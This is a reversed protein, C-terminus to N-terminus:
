QEIGVHIVEKGGETKLCVCVCVCWYCVRLCLSRAQPQWSALPPLPISSSNPSLLHFGNRKSHILQSIRSYLVPFQIQDRPVPCSPLCYLFLHICIITPNTQQIFSIPVTSHTLYVRIQFFFLSFPFSHSVICVSVCVFQFLLLFFFLLLRRM